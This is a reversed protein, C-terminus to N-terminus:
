HKWNQLSMPMINSCTAWRGSWASDHPCALHPVVAWERFGPRAAAVALDFIRKIGPRSMPLLKRRRRIRLRFPRGAAPMWGNGDILMQHKKALFASAAAGLAPKHITATTETATIPM